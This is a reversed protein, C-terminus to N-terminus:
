MLIAPMPHLELSDDELHRGVEALILSAAIDYECIAISDVWTGKKLPLKRGMYGYERRVAKILQIKRRKSTM